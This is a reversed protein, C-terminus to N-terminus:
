SIHYFNYLEKIHEKENFYSLYIACTFDDGILEYLIKAFNGFTVIPFNERITNTSITPVVSNM